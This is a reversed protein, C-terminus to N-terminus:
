LRTVLVIPFLFEQGLLSLPFVFHIHRGVGIDLAFVNRHVPEGVVLHFPEGRHIVLTPLGDIHFIALMEFAFLLPLTTIAPVIINSHGAQWLTDFPAYAGLVHAAHAIAPLLPSDHMRTQGEINCRVVDFEGATIVLDPLKSPLVSWLANPHVPLLNHLQVKILWSRCRVEGLSSGLGLLLLGEALHQFILGKANLIM